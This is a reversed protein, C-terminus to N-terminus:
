EVGRRLLTLEDRLSRFGRVLRTSIDEVGDEYLMDCFNWPQGEVVSTNTEIYLAYTPKDGRQGASASLVYKPIKKEIWDEAQNLSLGKRRECANKMFLNIKKGQEYECIYLDIKM